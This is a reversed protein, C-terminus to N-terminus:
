LINLTYTVKTPTAAFHCGVKSKVTNVYVGCTGTFSFPLNTSSPNGGLTIQTPQDLPVPLPISFVGVAKAM